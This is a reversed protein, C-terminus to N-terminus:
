VDVIMEWQYFGNESKTFSGHFSVAKFPSGVEIDVNAIIKNLQMIIQDQSSIEKNTELFDIFSNCVFSLAIQANIFISQLSEGRITFAIDATHSIEEFIPVLSYTKLKEYESNGMSQYLNIEDVYFPIKIQESEWKSIDPNKRCITLHPYFPRKPKKFDIGQSESWKLLQNRYNELNIGTIMEGEMAVLHPSRKPLGIYKSFFGAMSLVSEPKPFTKLLNKSNDDQGDLFLITIHRNREKIIEESPFANPWVTVVSAGIFLRNTKKEERM